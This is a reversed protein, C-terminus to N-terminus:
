KETKDMKDFQNEEILLFRSIKMLKRERANVM